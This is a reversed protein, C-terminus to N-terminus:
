RPLRAAPRASLPASDDFGAELCSAPSLARAPPLTKTYDPAM